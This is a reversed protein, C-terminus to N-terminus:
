TRPMPGSPCMQIATLSRTASGASGSSLSTPGTGTVTPDTSPDSTSHRAIVTRPGRPSSVVTAMSRDSTCDVTRESTYACSPM